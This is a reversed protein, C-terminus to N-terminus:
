VASPPLAKPSQLRVSFTLRWPARVETLKKALRVAPRAKRELVSVSSTGLPWNVASRGPPPVALACTCIGEVRLETSSAVPDPRVARKTPM